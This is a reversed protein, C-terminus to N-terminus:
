YEPAALKRFANLTKVKLIAEVKQRSFTRSSLSGGFSTKFRYM